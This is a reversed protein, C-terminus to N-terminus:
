KCCEIVWKIFNTTSDGTREATDHGKGWVMEFGVDEVGNYNELALALNMEVTCATDGQNIGTHIRWHAAPKSTGCGDYFASLYYMPNYMDQRYLSSNGLADVSDIYEKYAQVYAEDWGSYESYNEQNAELLEAMIPDFHLADNESDGFIYNEAQSRNLDDFAGVSKSASKCHNIFAEVDIVRATNSVADYEVWVEDTNLSGIYDQVTDYTIAESSGGMMDPPGGGGDPMDGDPPGGDPMAGDPPSGGGDPPGGSMGGGGGSTYPFETDILFNNLSREIESHLYDYYSGATYIGDDTQTLALVTGSEDKLGLENIYAAFAEALDGSMESTWTDEVRTGTDSYQGMMWEYAENAYDLSTIPCWCMAGCVADSIYMGNADAMAAGISDLYDYYLESDGTAGVLASQAGGGSMGFTFVRELDGPLIGANYRLYRIAAKLDTVGWPAGGNYALSGDENYGNNRGRCGPQVYIFGAELYSSVSSYNYSTPASQASYGPTNIPIVIPATAADYEGARGSENVTCTYSNGNQTGTLYAGPVYIGLSEYDTTEPDSCYVVGTQWYVDNDTDYNWTNNDFILKSYNTNTFQTTVKESIEEATESLVQNEQRSPTDGSVSPDAPQTTDNGNVSNTCACLSLLLASCLFLPLMKIKLKM